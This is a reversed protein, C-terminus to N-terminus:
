ILEIDLRSIRFQQAIIRFPQRFPIFNSRYQFQIILNIEEVMTLVCNEIGFGFGGFFNVSDFTVPYPWLSEILEVSGKLMITM